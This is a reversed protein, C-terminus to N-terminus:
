SYINNGHLNRTEQITNSPVGSGSVSSLSSLYPLDARGTRSETRFGAVFFLSVSEGDFLRITSSAFDGWVYEGALEEVGYTKKALARWYPHLVDTPETIVTPALNSQPLLKHHPNHGFTYLHHTPM